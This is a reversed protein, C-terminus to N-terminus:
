EGKGGCSGATGGLDLRIFAAETPLRLEPSVSDDGVMERLRLPLVRDVLDSFDSYPPSVYEMISNAMCLKLCPCYTYLMVDTVDTQCIYSTLDLSTM